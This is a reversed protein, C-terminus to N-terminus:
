AALWNTLDCPGHDAQALSDIQKQCYDSIEDIRQSWNKADASVQSDQGPRYKERLLWDQEIATLDRAVAFPASFLVILAATLVAIKQSLSKANGKCVKFRMFM